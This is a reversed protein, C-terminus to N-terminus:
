FGYVILMWTPLYVMWFSMSGIPCLDLDDGIWGLTEIPSDMFSGCIRLRFSGNVVDHCTQLPQILLHTCRIQVQHRLVQLFDTQFSPFFFPPNSVSEMFSVLKAENGLLLRDEKGMWKWTYVRQSRKLSPIRPAENKFIWSKAQLTTKKLTRKTPLTVLAWSPDMPSTYKGLIFVFFFCGSMYTFIYWEHVHIRHTNYSKNHGPIRGKKQQTVRQFKKLLMKDNLKGLRNRASVSHNICKSREVQPLMPCNNKFLDKVQKLLDSGGQIQPLKLRM